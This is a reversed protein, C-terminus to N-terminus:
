LRLDLEIGSSHITDNMEDLLDQVYGVSRKETIDRRHPTALMVNTGEAVATRAMNLPEEPTKAGDDVGPLIHTHLNYM